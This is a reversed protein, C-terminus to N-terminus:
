TREGAFVRARAHERVCLIVRERERVCVNERARARERVCESHIETVCVIECERSMCERKCVFM